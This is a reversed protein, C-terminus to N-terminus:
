INLNLTSIRGVRWQIRWICRFEGKLPGEPDVLDENLLFQNRHKIYKM